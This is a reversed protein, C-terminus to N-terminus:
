LDGLELGGTEPLSVKWYLLQQFGLGAQDQVRGPM